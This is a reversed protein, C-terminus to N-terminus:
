THSGSPSSCTHAKAHEQRWCVEAFHEIYIWPNTGVITSWIYFCGTCAHTYAFTHMCTSMALYQLPNYPAMDLSYQKRTQSSNSVEIHALTNTLRRHGVPADWPTDGVVVVASVVNRLLRSCIHFSWIHFSWSGSNLEASCKFISFRLMQPM